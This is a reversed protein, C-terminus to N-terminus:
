KEQGFKSNPTDEWVGVFVIRMTNKKGNRRIRTTAKLPVATGRARLAEKLLLEIEEQELVIEM